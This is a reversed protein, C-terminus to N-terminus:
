SEPLVPPERGRAAMEESSPFGEMGAMPLAQRARTHVGAHRRAGDSDCCAVDGVTEM